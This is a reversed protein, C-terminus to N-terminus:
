RKILKVTKTDTKGVITPNTGQPTYTVETTVKVKGKRKLRQKAEGRPRVPLRAKGKPDARKRAGKVSDAKALELAGPGPVELALRATGKEKNRKVKGFRFSRLADVATGKPGIHSDFLTGGLRTIFSREVATGDLNARGIRDDFGTWYVHAPDVAIGTSYSGANIFSREVGTGDLNARGITQGTTWYVHADDVAVWLPESVGPDIGTIFSPDVGTGDLNARGIRGNFTDAWYVHADDVAVGESSALCPEFPDTCPPGPITVFRNDIGRGDLNARGISSVLQGDAESSGNTWFVHGANVAVGWPSDAGTIFSPDVGTGDLNARAITGTGPYTWYVHEPDVAMGIPYGGVGMTIFRKDVGTGDLNARGIKNDERAWYVFAAARPALTLILALLAAFLLAGLRITRADTATARVSLPERQRRETRSQRAKM